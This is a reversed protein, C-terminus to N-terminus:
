PDPNIREMARLAEDRARPYDSLTMQKLAPVAPLAAQGIEGLAIAAQVRVAAHEDGLATMLAPVAQAAAPGLEALLSAACARSAYGRPDTDIGRNGMLWEILREVETMM